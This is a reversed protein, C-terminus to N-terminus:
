FVDFLFNVAAEFFFDGLGLLCLILVMDREGAVSVSVLFYDSLIHELFRETDLGLFSLDRLLM